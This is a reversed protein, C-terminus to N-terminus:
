AFVVILVVAICVLTLVIAFIEKWGCIQKLVWKVTEKVVCVLVWVWHFPNWWDKEKWCDEYRVTEQVWESECVYSLGIYTLVGVLICAILIEAVPDPLTVVVGIAGAGHALMSQRAAGVGRTALMYASGFASVAFSVLLWLVSVGQTLQWVDRVFSPQDQAKQKAHEAANQM